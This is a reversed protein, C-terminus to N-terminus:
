NFYFLIVTQFSSFIYLLEASCFAQTVSIDLLKNTKYQRFFWLNLATKFFNEGRKRPFYKEVSEWGRFLVNECRNKFTSKSKTIYIFWFSSNPLLEFAYFRQKKEMKVNCYILWILDVTDLSIFAILGGMFLESQRLSSINLICAPEKRWPLGHWRGGPPLSKIENEEVIVGCQDICVQQNIVFKLNVCHDIYAKEQPLLPVAIATSSSDNLFYFCRM